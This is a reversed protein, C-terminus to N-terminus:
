VHLGRERGVRTLWDTLKEDAREQTFEAEFRARAAAGMRERLDPDGLLQLIRRALEGPDAEDLVFASDGDIVTEKIAGQDTTVIPIGAAIGELLVRPHGEPEVPPFLLLTSRQMLERKAPGDVEGPFEITGDIGSSLTRLREEIQADHFWGAFVFRADPREATVIRAAEMAAVAGKRERLGSLFLVTAPDRERAEYGPDQTGNPVVALREVPVLGEFMHRLSAGMVGISALRRLSARFFLALPRPLTAFFTHFEGGRLHGAVTWGRLSAVWVLLSDRLLGSVGQSLPLYVLGRRARLMTALVVVARLAHVVNMVDWRDINTSSRHDSTDLHRVDFRERLRRNALVLSTSITVGHV